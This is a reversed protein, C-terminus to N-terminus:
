PSNSGGKEEERREREREREGERGEERERVVAFGLEQFLCVVSVTLASTRPMQRRLHQWNADLVLQLLSKLYGRWMSLQTKVRSWLSRWRLLPQRSPQGQSVWSIRLGGPFILACFLLINGKSLEALCRMIEWVCMTDDCMRNIPVNPVRFVYRCTKIQSDELVSQRLVCSRLIDVLRWQISLIGVVYLEDGFFSSAYIITDGPSIGAKAANGSSSKVKLGNSGQALQLGLPKDVDVQFQLLLVLGWVLVTNTRTKRERVCEGVAAAASHLPTAILARGWWKYLIRQLLLPYPIMSFFLWKERERAIWRGKGRWRVRKRENKNEKTCPSLPEWWRLGGTGWM